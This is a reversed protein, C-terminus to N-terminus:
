FVDKEVLTAAMDLMFSYIAEITVAAEMIYYSETPSLGSFEMKRLAGSIEGSDHFAEVRLLLEDISDSSIM